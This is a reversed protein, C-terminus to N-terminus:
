TTGYRLARKAGSVAFDVGSGDAVGASSVGHAAAVVARTLARGVSASKGSTSMHRSAEVGSGRGPESCCRTATGNPHKRAGCAVCECLGRLILARAVVHQGHARKGYLTQPKQSRKRDGSHVNRSCTRLISAERWYRLVSSKRKCEFPIAASRHRRVCRRVSSIANLMILLGLM